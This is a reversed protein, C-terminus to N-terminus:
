HHIFHVPSANVLHPGRSGWAHMFLLGWVMLNELVTLTSASQM